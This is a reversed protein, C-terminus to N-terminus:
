RQGLLYSISVFQQGISVINSLSDHNVFAEVSNSVIGDVVAQNTVLEQAVMGDYRDVVSGLEQIVSEVQCNQVFDGVGVSKIQSPVQAFLQSIRGPVADKGFEIVDM